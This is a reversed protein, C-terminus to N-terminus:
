QFRAMERRRMMKEMSKKSHKRCKKVCCCLLASSVVTLGIMCYMPMRDEYHMHNEPKRKFEKRPGRGRHERRRELDKM